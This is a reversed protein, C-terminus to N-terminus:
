EIFYSCSFSVTRSFPQLLQKNHNILNSTGCHRDSESRDTSHFLISIVWSVLSVSAHPCFWNSWNLAVSNMWYLWVLQWTVYDTCTVVNHTHPIYNDDYIVWWDIWTDHSIWPTMSFIDCSIVDAESPIYLRWNQPVQNLYARAKELGENAMM